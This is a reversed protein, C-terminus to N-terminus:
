IAPFTPATMVAAPWRKSRKRPMSRATKSCFRASLRGRDHGRSVRRQDEFTPPPKPM